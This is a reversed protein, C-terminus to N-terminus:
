RAPLRPPTTGADFVGGQIGKLLKGADDISLFMAQFEVEKDFQWIGRGPINPIEAAAPSGLVIQSNVADRVHFCATMSFMAKSNSWSDFTKADPRQTAAVVCIGPARGIRVLRNIGTQVEEMTIEALEDVLLVIFPLENGAEIYDQIRVFGASKLLKIRRDMERNVAQVLPLAAAEDTVVLAHNEAFGYDLGKLDIVGVQARGTLLTSTVLGRCLVSKGSYPHGGILLNPGDALDAVIFGGASYGVPFPLFMKEYPAPNWAFPYFKQLDDTLVTMYVAKGRKELQVAGGTSDAFFHEKAKFDRYSKGPPLKIVFFWGSEQRKAKLVSPKLDNYLADITDLVAAPVERGKRHRLLMKVSEIAEQLIDDPM